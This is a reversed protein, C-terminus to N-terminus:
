GVSKLLKKFNLDSLADLITIIILSVVIHFLLGLQTPEGEHKVPLFRDVLDFTMPNATAFFVLAFFLIRGKQM